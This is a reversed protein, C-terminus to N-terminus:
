GRGLIRALSALRLEAGRAPPPPTAGLRGTALQASWDRLAAVDRDCLPDLPLRGLTPRASTPVRAPPPSTPRPSHAERQRQRTLERPTLSPM